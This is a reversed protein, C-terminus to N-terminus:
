ICDIANTLKYIAYLMVGYVIIIAPHVSFSFYFLFSSCIEVQEHMNQQKTYSLLWKFVDNPTFLTIQTPSKLFHKQFSLNRYLVFIFISTYRIGIKTCTVTAKNKRQHIIKLFQLIIFYLSTSLSLFLSFM